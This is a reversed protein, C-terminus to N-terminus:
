GLSRAHPRVQEKINNLDEDSRGATFGEAIVGADIEDFHSAMQDLALSGGHFAGKFVAREVHSPLACLWDIL